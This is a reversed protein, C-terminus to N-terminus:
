KGVEGDEGEEDKNEDGSSSPEVESEPQFAGVQVAAALALAPATAPVAAYRPVEDMKASLPASSSSAAPSVSKM